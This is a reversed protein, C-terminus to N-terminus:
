KAACSLVVETGHVNTEITHVPREVILRVGVGAALHVTMDALDVVEAVLPRDIVSGVRYAFRPHGVLRGSEGDTRDFPRRSGLGSARGRRSAGGLALGLVRSRGHHLDEHGTGHWTAWHM